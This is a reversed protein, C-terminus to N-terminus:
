SLIHPNSPFLFYLKSLFHMMFSSSKELEKERNVRLYVGALIMGNVHLQRITVTEEKQKKSMSIKRDPNGKRGEQISRFSYM